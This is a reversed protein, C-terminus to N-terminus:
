LFGVELHSLDGGAVKVEAKESLLENRLDASFVGHALGIYVGFVGYPLHQALERVRWTPQREALEQLRELAEPLAPRLYDASVRKIYECNRILSATLSTSTLVRFEVGLDRLHETALGYKTELDTPISERKVEAVVVSGDCLNILFDPTYFIRKLDSGAKFHKRSHQVEGSLVDMTWPQERFQQVQPDIDLLLARQKEEYSEMSLLQGSGKASVFCHCARGRRVRRSVERAASHPDIGKFM